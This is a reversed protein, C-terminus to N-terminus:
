SKGKEGALQGCAAAIDSGRTKRTITNIGAKLLIQRFADLVEESSSQWNCGPFSNFRLLNIKCRVGQLLKVLQRAQEKSDNVGALMVYEFTVMRRPDKFYYKCATMLEQLPYKKNVPMIKNRLEDNPAHLSVALSVESVERLLQMKPVIGSTSLTVRYKSLGYANDDLMLDMAAVVNDFNLLPEGMGMLVVNTILLKSKLRWLQGVIEAVTLNRTFGLTATACFKCGLACGVQSSVCLTGRDPEPIYVTEVQNGDQLQFLFKRTGDQSVQEKVIEPFIIEASHPLKERLAASLNTMAAFDTVRQQHIWKLIQTGRFPKEGLDTFFDILDAKNYNALNIKKM